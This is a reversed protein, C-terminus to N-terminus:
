PNSLKGESRSCALHCNCWTVKTLHTFVVAEIGVVCQQEKWLIYFTRESFKFNSPSPTPLQPIVQCDNWLETSIKNVYSLTQILSESILIPKWKDYKFSKILLSLPLNSKPQKLISLDYNNTLVFTKGQVLKTNETVRNLFQNYM